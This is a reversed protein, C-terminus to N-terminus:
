FQFSNYKLILLKFNPLFNEIFSRIFKFFFSSFKLDNNLLFVIMYTQLGGSHVFHLFNECM